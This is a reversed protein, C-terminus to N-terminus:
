RMAAAISEPRSARAQRELVDLRRAIADIEGSKKQLAALKRQMAAIQAHKQALERSQKQVENLLMAPLVQYEVTEPKGDSNDMVLERYVKEVEEAILGYQRTDETDGKYQFTVPRLKM